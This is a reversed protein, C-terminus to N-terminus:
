GEKGLFVDSMRLVGTFRSVESKTGFDMKVAWEIEGNNSKNSSKSSM